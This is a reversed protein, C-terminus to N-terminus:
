KKLLIAAASCRLIVTDKRTQQDWFGPAAGCGCKHRLAFIQREAMSETQSLSVFRHLAAAPM